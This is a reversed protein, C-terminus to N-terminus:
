LALMRKIENYKNTYCEHTEDWKKQMDMPPTYVNKLNAIKDIAVSHIYEAHRLEDEAMKRYESDIGDARLELWKEAYTEAGDLEENIQEVYAKIMKM